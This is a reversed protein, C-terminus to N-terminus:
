EKPLPRRWDLGTVLLRHRPSGDWDVTLGQAALADGVKRGVAVMAEDHAEASSFPRDDPDLADYGLYLGADPVALRAADQAHFYVYGTAGRDQAEEWCLLKADSKDWGCNMRAVLGDAELQAFAAALRVDDTPTRAPPTALYAERRAWLEQVIEDVDDPDVDLEEDDEALERMQEVVEDLPAFGAVIIAWAEDRLYAEGSVGM